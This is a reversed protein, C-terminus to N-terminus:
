KVEEGIVKLGPFQNKLSGIIVCQAARDAETQPDFQVSSAVLKMLNSSM